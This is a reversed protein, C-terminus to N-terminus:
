LFADRTVYIWGQKKKKKTKKKKLRMIRTIRTSRTRALLIRACLRYIRAAGILHACLSTATYNHISLLLLLLKTHM